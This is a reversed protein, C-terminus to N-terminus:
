RSQERMMEIGTVDTPVHPGDVVVFAVVLRMGAKLAARGAAQRGTEAAQSALDKVIEKGQDLAPQVGAAVRQMAENAGKAVQEAADRASERARPQDM